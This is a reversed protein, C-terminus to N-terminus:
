GECSEDEVMRAGPKDLFFGPYATWERLSSTAMTGPRFLRRPERRSLGSGIPELAFNHAKYYINPKLIRSPLACSDRRSDKADNKTLAESAAPRVGLALPRARPGRRRHNPARRAAREKRRDAGLVALPRM